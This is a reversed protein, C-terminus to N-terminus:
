VSMGRVSLHGMILVWADDYGYLAIVLIYYYIPSVFSSMTEVVFM